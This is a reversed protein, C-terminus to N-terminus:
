GRVNYDACLSNMGTLWKHTYIFPGVIGISICDITRGDDHFETDYFYKMAEEPSTFAFSPVGHGARAGM